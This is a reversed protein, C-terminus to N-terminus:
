PERATVPLTYAGRRLAKCLKPGVRDKGVLDMVPQWHNTWLRLIEYVHPKRIEMRWVPADFLRQGVEVTSLVAGSRTSYVTHRSRLLV